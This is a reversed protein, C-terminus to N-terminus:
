RQQQLQMHVTSVHMFQQNRGRVFYLQGLCFIPYLLLFFGSYSIDFAALAMNAMKEALDLENLKMYMISM